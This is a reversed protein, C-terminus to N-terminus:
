PLYFALYWPLPTSNKMECLVGYVAVILMHM